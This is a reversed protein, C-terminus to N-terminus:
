DLLKAVPPFVHDYEGVVLLILHALGSLLVNQAGHMPEDLTGLGIVGEEEM